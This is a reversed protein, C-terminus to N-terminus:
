LNQKISLIPLIMWEFTHKLQVQDLADQDEGLTDDDDFDRWTGQFEELCSFLIFLTPGGNDHQHEDPPM